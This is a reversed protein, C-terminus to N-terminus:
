KNEVKESIFLPFEKLGDYPSLNNKMFVPIQPSNFTGCDILNQIWEPEPSKLPHTQAGLIIWNIGTLDLDDEAIDDYIPEFSIIKFPAKTKKLIEIRLLDKKTCVSVGQVWNKPFALDEPINQPQKTLNIFIHHKAEIVTSFVQKRDQITFGEDWFDASFTVGIRKPKLYQFPQKLREFHTHPKFEYCELCKHLQRKAQYKAWCKASVACNTGLCGVFPSWTFDLYEIKTANM